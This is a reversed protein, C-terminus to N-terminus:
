RNIEYCLIANAIAVNLSETSSSKAQPISINNTIHTKLDTPIGHSESGLVLMGNKVGNIITPNEGKLDAAFIPLQIKSANELLIKLDTYYVTCNFIAGMSSQVVKPNYLDVTELSCIVNKIGFWAATRLITGLNGPDKIDSLILSIGTEWDADTLQNQKTKVIALVSNNSSLQGAKTLEEPTAIEINLQSILERNESIFSESAFSEKIEWNNSVAEEFLKKGEIVFEQNLLRQKKTFLQQIYKSKNKSLM